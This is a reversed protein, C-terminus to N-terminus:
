QQRHSVSININGKRSINPLKKRLASEIASHSFHTRLHDMDDPLDESPWAFDMELSLTTLQKLSNELLPDLAEAERLVLELANSLSGRDANNPPLRWEFRISLINIGSYISGTSILAGITEWLEFVKSDLIM